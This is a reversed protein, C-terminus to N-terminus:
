LRDITHTLINLPYKQGKSYDKIMKKIDLDRLKNGDMNEIEEASFWKTESVDEYLEGTPKESINGLFVIKIPHFTLNFKDELRKNLLSYIGLIYTPEFNYGTEEKVEKKITEMPDEELEIWGAPHNWQGKAIEKTEKVLLFKGEKEILASCVGFTQSYDRKSM